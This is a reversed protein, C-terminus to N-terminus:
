VNFQKLHRLLLQDEKDLNTYWSRGMERRTADSMKTYFGHTKLVYHRIVGEPLPPADSVSVNYVDGPKTHVFTGNKTQLVGTVDESTKSNVVQMDTLTVLRPSSIEGTVLSAFTVKHRKTAEICVTVLESDIRSLIEHPIRVVEKSARVFRPFLTELHVRVDDVVVSVKLSKGGGGGTNSTCTTDRTSVCHPTDAFAYPTAVVTRLANYSMSSGVFSAGVILSVGFATTVISRGLAWSSITFRDLASFPVQEGLTWDRFHSDVMIFTPTNTALSFRPVTMILEDGKELMIGEGDHTDFTDDVDFSVETFVNQKKHYHRLLQHAVPASAETNFVYVDKLNGDVVLAEHPAIDVAHIAFSDIFSEEPEIERIQFRLTGKEVKPATRLIYTDGGIGQTYAVFGESYSAFATQPKGFLFDNEFVYKKGDWVKLFPTSSSGPNGTSGSWTNVSGDSYTATSYGGYTGTIDTAGNAVNQATWSSQTMTGNVNCAQCGPSSSGGTGGGGWLGFFPILEIAHPLNSIDVSSIQLYQLVVYMVAGFISAHLIPHTILQKHLHM